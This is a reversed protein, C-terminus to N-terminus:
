VAPLLDVAPLLGVRLGHRGGTVASVRRGRRLAADMRLVARLRARRRVLGSGPLLASWLLLVRLGRPPRARRTLPRM